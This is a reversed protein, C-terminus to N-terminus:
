YKSVLRILNCDYKFLFPCRNMNEIHSVEIVHKKFEDFKEDCLCCFDSFVVMNYSSIPLTFKACFIHLEKIENELPFVTNTPKGKIEIRKSPSESM